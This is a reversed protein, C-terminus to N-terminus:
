GRRVEMALRVTTTVVGIYILVVFCIATAISM